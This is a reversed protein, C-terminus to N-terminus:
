EETSETEPEADAAYSWGCSSCTTDSGTMFADCALCRTTEVSDDSESIDCVVAAGLLGFMGATLAVATEKPTLQPNSQRSRDIKEIVARAAPVQTEEVLIRPATAWGGPLDGVADQLAENEIIAPIDAEDLEFKIAHAQLAHSARFVEVFKSQTNPM